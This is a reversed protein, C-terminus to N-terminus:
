HAFGWAVLAGTVFVIVGLCGRGQAVVAVAEESRVPTIAVRFQQPELWRDEPDQEIARLIAQRIRESGNPQRNEGADGLVAAMVTATTRGGFPPRGTLAEYLTAGLSFVDSQANEPGGRVLEPALYNNFRLLRGVDVADIGSARLAAFLGGWRISVARDPGIMISEPMILGHCLEEICLQELVAVARTALDQVEVSSLTGIALLREALSSGASRPSVVFVSGSKTVGAGTLGGTRPTRRSRSGLAGLFGDVSRMAATIEDHLRTITVAAGDHSTALYEVGVVNSRGDGDLFYPADLVRLATAFDEGTM